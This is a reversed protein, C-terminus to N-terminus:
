PMPAVSAAHPEVVIVTWASRGGLARVKERLEAEDIFKRTQYVVAFISRWRPDDGYNSVDAVVGDLVPRAKAKRDIFKFEIAARLSVIAADCRLKRGAQLIEGEGTVDPFCTRLMEIVPSAVDHERTPTTGSRAVIAPTSRLIRELIGLATGTGGLLMAELPQFLQRAEALAPSVAHLDWPTHETAALDKHKRRARTVDAAYAPLALREALVALHRYAALVHWRLTETAEALQEAHHGHRVNETTNGEEVYALKMEAQSASRFTDRIAEALLQEEAGIM